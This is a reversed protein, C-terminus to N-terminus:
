QDHASREGKEAAAHRRRLAIDRRAGGAAAVDASLALDGASLRAALAPERTAHTRAEFDAREADADGGAAAAPATSAATTTAAAAAAPAAGRSSTSAAPRRRTATRRRRASASSSAGARRAARAGGVWRPRAHQAHDRTDAACRRAHVRGRERHRARHAAAAVLDAVREARTAAAVPRERTLALARGAGRRGVRHRDAAAGRAVEGAHAAKV